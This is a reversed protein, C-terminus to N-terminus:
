IQGLNGQRFRMCFVLGIGEVRLNVLRFVHPSFCDLWREVLMKRGGLIDGLGFQGSPVGHAQFSVRSVRSAM